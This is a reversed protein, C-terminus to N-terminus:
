GIATSLQLFREIAMVSILQYFLKIVQDNQKCDRSTNHIQDLNIEKSRLKSGNRNESQRYQNQQTQIIKRQSQSRSYSRRAQSDM